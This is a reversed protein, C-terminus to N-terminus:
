NFEEYTPCLNTWENSAAVKERVDGIDEALVVALSDELHFDKHCHLFWPGTNDLKFRITTLNGPNVYTVDRRVPSEYNYVESESHRVVSFTHGHMHFPHPASPAKGGYLNVEITKGKSITYVLNNPLLEKSHRQGSLIQLLVPVSPAKWRIGNMYFFAPFEFGLTIDITYDAGGPCPEGPTKPELHEGSHEKSTPDSDPAGKYRLIASNIGNEYGVPGTDPSARTWYNRVKQNARLIISYRQGADISFTHSPDCSLSLAKWTRRQHGLITSNAPVKEPYRGEGNILTANSTVPALTALLNHLEYWDAITLITSEDDVDYNNKYPDDPDYVVLPGRLGDCYQVSIHSHYWYTGPDPVGFDYLFSNGPTIPCQTVSAVGDVWNSGKQFTGHWHISTARVMSTDVLQNATILPGLTDVTALSKGALVACVQSREWGDPAIRRNGIYLDGERHIVQLAIAGVSLLYLILSGCFPISM